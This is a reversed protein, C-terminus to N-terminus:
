YFSNHFVLWYKKSYFGYPPQEYFLVFSYDFKKYHDVKRIIIDLLKSCIGPFLHHLKSDYVM